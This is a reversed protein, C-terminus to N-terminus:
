AKHGLTTRYDLFSRFREPIDINLDQHIGWSYPATGGLGFYYRGTEYEEKQFLLYM